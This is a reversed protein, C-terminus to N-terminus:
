SPFSHGEAVCGVVADSLVALAETFHQVAEFCLLGSHRHSIIRGSGVLGNLGDRRAHQVIGTGESVM